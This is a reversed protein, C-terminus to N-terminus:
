IKHDSRIVLQCPYPLFCPATTSLYLGLIERGVSAFFYGWDRDSTAQQYKSQVHLTCIIDYHSSSIATFCLTRKQWTRVLASNDPAGIMLDTRGM